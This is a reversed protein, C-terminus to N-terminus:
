QQGQGYSELFCFPIFSRPQEHAMKKKENIYRRYSQPSSGTEKKFLISFSSSSEFGVANCIETVSLMNEKLLEQALRIRKQTLYQHPTKQYIRSFLRHFHYRSICASKSINDLSIPQHYNEDIFIKADVIKRYIDSTATMDI